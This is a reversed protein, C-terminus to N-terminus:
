LNERSQLESTHEESRSGVGALANNLMQELQALEEDRGVFTAAQLFSERIASSEVRVTSGVADQLDDIVDGADAYRDDADKALLLDSSRRTPFPHPSLL